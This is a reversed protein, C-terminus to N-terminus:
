ISDQREVCPVARDVTKRKSFLNTVHLERNKVTTCNWTLQSVLKQMRNDMTTLDSKTVFELDHYKSFVDLIEFLTVQTYKTKSKLERLFNPHLKPILCKRTM